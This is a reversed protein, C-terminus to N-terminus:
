SMKLIKESVNKFISVQIFRIIEPVGLTHMWGVYVYIKFGQSDRHYNLISDARHEIKICRLPQWTDRGAKWISISIQLLAGGYVGATEPSHIASLSQWAM